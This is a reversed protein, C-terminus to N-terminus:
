RVQNSKQLEARPKKRYASSRAQKGRVLGTYLKKRQTSTRGSHGTAARRTAEKEALGKPKELAVEDEAMKAARAADRM